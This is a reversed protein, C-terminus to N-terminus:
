EVEGDSEICIVETSDKSESCQNAAVRVESDTNPQSQLSHEENEQVSSTQLDDEFNSSSTEGVPLCDVRNGNLQNLDTPVFPQQTNRMPDLEGAILSSNSQLITSQSPLTTTSSNLLRANALNLINPRYSIHQLQRDIAHTNLLRSRAAMSDGSNLQQIHRLVALLAANTTTGPSFVHNGTMEQNQPFQSRIASLTQNFVDPRHFNWMPINSTQACPESDRSPLPINIGYLAKRKEEEYDKKAERKEKNSLKSAAQDSLLSEHQFPLNVIWAGCTMCLHKLVPDNILDISGEFNIHPEEDWSTTLLKTLEDKSFNEVPNMEDVVRDSVGQKSIQRYYIRKEMTNSAILRYIYCPKQQGYRYIRCVAQADHCPNWSVDFVVVRNAGVLNIGLCGARTSLLFLKLMQNDKKNFMEILRERESSSTNGDIRLYDTNKRWQRRDSLGDISNMSETCVATRNLVDEILDLTLLSQSFVLMKDGKRVSETILEMLIVLKGSNELIGEVYQRSDFIEKAKLLLTKSDCSIAHFGTDNQSKRSEVKLRMGDETLIDVDADFLATKKSQDAVMARYLIDPHNWIKSCIAFIKIPNLQDGCNEQMLLLFRKYIEEQIKSMRVMIVHEEKPPLAVKLESYDKRQVFGKLLSSLVHARYKMLKKDEATSDMCQGNVIPREFMNQFEHRSGLYDPRVFDVMCWYETLNNQLPYGTLVLRKRTRIKHLAHHINSQHNKIRHGEDCVVLDPGPNCMAKQMDLLLKMEKEEEDIDIFTAVSKAKKKKKGKANTVSNCLSAKYLAIMRFMEYGILLVGGKTHWQDIISARSATTKSSDNVIFVGYNRYEIAGNESTCNRDLSSCSAVEESVNQSECKMGTDEFASRSVNVPIDDSHNSKDSAPQEKSSCIPTGEQEGTDEREQPLGVGESSNGSDCMNSRSSHKLAEPVWMDFEILWNQLTNIPLIVLVKKSNTFKLFIHIFSITQITKGLGMAHALICGMGHAPEFNKISEILNEYLFRVGIIQHPKIVKAIQPPLFIDPEDPMHGINVVINGNESKINAVSLLNTCDESSDSAAKEDESESSSILIVSEVHTPKAASGMEIDDNSSHDFENDSDDGDDLILIAQRNGVLNDDITSKQAAVSVTAAQNSLSRQLELRQLREQEERQADLTKPDLQHMKLVKRINRRRNLPKRRKKGKKKQASSLSTNEQSAGDDNDSPLCEDGLAEEDEGSADNESIDNGEDSGDFGDSSNVEGSSGVEDIGSVKDTVDVEGSGDCENEVTIHCDGVIERSLIRMDEAVALQERSDTGNSRNSENVVSEDM